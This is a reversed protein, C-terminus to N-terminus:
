FELGDGVDVVKLGDIERWMRLVSPRDDFVLKPDYGDELMQDYMERKVITDKRYDKEKRMYLPRTPMERVTYDDIFDLINYIDHWGDLLFWKSLSRVTDHRESESRGSAFILRNKPYVSQALATAISIVPMIPVDFTKEKPDRFAKWNKPKQKIHRLRHSIDLLTGDIDFIIDMTTRTGISVM